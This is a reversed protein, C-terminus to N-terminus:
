RQVIIKRYYSRRNKDYLTLYYIGGRLHSLDISQPGHAALRGQGQLSGDSAHLAYRALAEGQSVVNVVDSAPNPYVSLRDNATIATISTSQTTDPASGDCPLNGRKIIMYMQDLVEGSSRRIVSFRCVKEHEPEISFDYIKMYGNLYNYSCTDPPITYQYDSYERVGERHYTQCTGTNYQPPYEQCLQYFASSNSCLWEAKLYFAEQVTQSLNYVRFFVAKYVNGTGSYDDPDITIRLTDISAYSGQQLIRMDVQASASFPVASLLAMFLKQRPFLKM